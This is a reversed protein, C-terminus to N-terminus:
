KQGNELAEIRNTLKELRIKLEFAKWTDIKLGKVLNLNVIYLLNKDKLSNMYSTIYTYFKGLKYKCNVCLINKYRCRYDSEETSTQVNGEYVVNRVESFICVQLAESISILSSVLAVPNESCNSCVFLAAEDEDGGCVM